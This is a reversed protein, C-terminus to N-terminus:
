SSAVVRQAQMARQGRPPRKPSKKVVTGAAKRAAPDDFALADLQKATPRRGSQMRMLVLALKSADKGGIFRYTPRSVPRSVARAPARQDIRRGSKRM